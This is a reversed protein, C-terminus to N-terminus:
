SPFKVRKRKLLDEALLERGISEDLSLGAVGPRDAQSRIGDCRQQSPSRKPRGHSLLDIDVLYKPRTLEHRINEKARIDPL